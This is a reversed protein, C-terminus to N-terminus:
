HLIPVLAILAVCGHPVRADADLHELINNQSILGHRTEATIPKPINPPQDRLRTTHRQSLSAQPKQSQPHPIDTTPVPTSKRCQPHCSTTNAAANQPIQVLM